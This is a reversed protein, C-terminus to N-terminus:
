PLILNSPTKLTTAALLEEDDEVEVEPVGIEHQLAIAFERRLVLVPKNEFDLFAQQQGTQPHPQSKPDVMASINQEFVTSLQYPRPPNESHFAENLAEAVQNRIREEAIFGFKANTYLQIIHWCWVRDQRVLPEVDHRDYGMLNAVIPHFGMPFIALFPLQEPHVPTEVSSTPHDTIGPCCIKIEKGVKKRIARIMKVRVAM